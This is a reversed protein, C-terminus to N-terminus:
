PDIGEETLGDLMSPSFSVLRSEGAGTSITIWVGGPRICYAAQAIERMQPDDENLVPATIRIRWLAKPGPYAGLMARSEESVQVAATLSHSELYAQLAEQAEVLSPLAGDAAESQECPDVPAQASSACAALMVGLLGGIWWTLAQRHM